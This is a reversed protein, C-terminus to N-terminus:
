FPAARIDRQFPISVFGLHNLLFDSTSLPGPTDIRSSTHLPHGCTAALPPRLFAIADLTNLVTRAQQARDEDPGTSRATHDSPTGTRKARWGM